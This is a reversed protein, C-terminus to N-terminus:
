IRRKNDRISDSLFANQTVLRGSDSIYQRVSKTLDAERQELKLVNLELISKDTNIKLERSEFAGSIKLLVVTIISVIIPVASSLFQMIIGPRRNLELIELKLKRLELEDKRTPIAMICNEEFKGLILLMCGKGM